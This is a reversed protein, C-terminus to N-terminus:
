VRNKRLIIKEGERAIFEMVRDSNPTGFKERDGESLGVAISEELATSANYNHRPLSQFFRQIVIETFPNAHIM